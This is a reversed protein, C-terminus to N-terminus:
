RGRLQVETDLMEGATDVVVRQVGPVRTLIYAAMLQALTENQNQLATYLRDAAIQCRQISDPADIWTRSMQWGRDMDADMKLFFDAADTLMADPVPINVVRDEIVLELNM